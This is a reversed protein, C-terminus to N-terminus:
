PVVGALTNRRDTLRQANSSGGEIAVGLALLDFGSAGFLESFDLDLSM